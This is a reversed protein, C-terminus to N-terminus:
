TNTTLTRRNSLFDCIHKVAELVFHREGQDLSQMWATIITADDHSVAPTESLLEAVTMHLSNALKELTVLSPLHKGREFRSLTETDVGLREALQAQTLSLAKRRQSINAALRSALSIASSEVAEDSAVQPKNRETM